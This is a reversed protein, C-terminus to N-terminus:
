YEFYFSGYNAAVFGSLGAGSGLEVINKDKFTDPNEVIYRSFGHKLSYSM